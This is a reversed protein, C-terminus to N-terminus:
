WYTLSVHDGEKINIDTVISPFDISIDYVKDYKVEGWFDLRTYQEAEASIAELNNTKGAQVVNYRIIGAIILIILFGAAILIKNKHRFFVEKM